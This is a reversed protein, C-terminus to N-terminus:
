SGPTWITGSPADADEKDPTWLKDRAKAQDVDIPKAHEVILDVAKRMAIDERLAEDAGQSKAKKLSRQLSKESPPKGGAQPAAAERLADLLEDDSVEIGEQEVIAALVSERKLATEAEPEAETVLEEETKGTLQLYRAPDLGQSSLRRATRHWMEHAKAHVLEHAVDVKADRAVADITAERYEAEVQREEVERLRSEIEARLEDLSDYGGAELALEDDLEPLRKEKVEKVEVAFVADKGQLEDAQYDDPFTVKLEREDGAAAGELQEEFGEILRGSGLELLFGRAEGGEFPEGDITGTFDLVAFDGNAAPREVTELSALSERLRELEAQVEDPSVEPERRGVEVGKWDGLQARPRVGVEISFALPSGREPLDSLDVKPDGVTAVGAEGVAQEYWGPLARRVAEDLVAERGVQQIVVQPPVKGKRFGPVRLDRGIVGAAANLERELAEAPVEVDLRVRSDGLETTTTKVASSM